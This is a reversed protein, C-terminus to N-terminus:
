HGKLLRSLHAGGLSWPIGPVPLDPLFHMWKRHINVFERRLKVGAIRRAFAM